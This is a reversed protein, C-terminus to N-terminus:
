ENRQNLQVTSQLSGDEYALKALEVARDLIERHIIPNLECESIATVGNISLGWATLGDLIIPQPKKVYRVVYRSVTTGSKTIIESVSRQGNATVPTTSNGQSLRWAQRKVPEKYPKTMLRDYEKYNLPVVTVLYPTVGDTVTVQENSVIWTDSPLLFIQAREDISIYTGPTPVDAVINVTRLIEAFDMQRKASDDFGQQLKNSTPNFYNKILEEQAKTL